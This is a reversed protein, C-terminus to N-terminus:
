AWTLNTCPDSSISDGVLDEPSMEYPFEPFQVESVTWSKGGFDFTLDQENYNRVTQALSMSDYTLTLDVTIDRDTVEIAYVNTGFSSNPDKVVELDNSVGLTLEEIAGNIDTGGLQVNSLDGYTFPDTTDQSAHAGGNASDIYDNSGWDEADAAMWSATVESVSDESITLELEEGVVGAIRRYESGEENQEGLLLPTLTSSVGGVAGTFYQFFTFDQPHYTEDGSFMESVKVNEKQELKNSIGAEPLYTFTSAETEQSVSHSTVLGIWSWTDTDGQSTSGFNTDEIYEIPQAGQVVTDGPM